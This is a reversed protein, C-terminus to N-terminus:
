GQLGSRRPDHNSPHKRLIKKKTTRLVPSELPKANTRYLYASSACFAISRRSPTCRAKEKNNRKTPAKTSRKIIRASSQNKKTPLFTSPLFMMTCNAFYPGLASGTHTQYGKVQSMAVRKSGECLLM